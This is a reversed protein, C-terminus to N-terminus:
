FISMSRKFLLVLSLPLAPLSGFSGQLGTAFLTYISAPTIIGTKLRNPCVCGVGSGARAEGTGRRAEESTLERWKSKAACLWPRM